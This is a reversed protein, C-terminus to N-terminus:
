GVLGFEQQFETAFVAAERRGSTTQDYGFTPDNKLQKMWEDTTALRIQGDKGVYQLPKSWKPDSLKVTAPNVGLVQVALNQYPAYIDNVTSGNDIQQSLQPYLAKAQNRLEQQLADPAVEGRVVRDVQRAATEFTVPLGYDNAMGMYKSISDYNNLRRSAEAPNTALEQFWNVEADTRTRWWETQHLAQVTQEVPWKGTIAEQLKGYLEPVTTMWTFEPFQKRIEDAVSGTSGSAAGGSTGRLAAETAAWQAGDSSLGRAQQFATLAKHTRPGDKGDLPGPDFGAAKLAQQIELISM